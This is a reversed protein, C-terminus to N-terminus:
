LKKGQLMKKSCKNCVFYGHKGLVKNMDPTLKAHQRCYVCFGWYDKGIKEKKIEHVM